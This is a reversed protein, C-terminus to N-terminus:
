GAAPVVPVRDLALTATAPPPELDGLARYGGTGCVVCDERRGAGLADWRGARFDYLRYPQVPRAGTFLALLENVGEAAVAANLTAVSPAPVDETSVYGRRRYLPRLAAPARQRAAATLDIGGICQLCFGGPLVCRVQGGAEVIAGGADTAIGTGLDILPLLYQVALRNVVLRAGDNDVGALVADCGAVQRWAEPHDVPLALPAVRAAPRVAAVYRALAEVKRGRARADAATAGFLRNLNSPEVTDADVLTLHGIGLHALLTVVASGLGGAGIVAVRAGLLRRQGAEGLALVQRAFPAWVAADAAGPDGGAAGVASRPHIVRLRAGAEGGAAPGCVTLREIPVPLLAGAAGPRVGRWLRGAVDSPTLVLAGYWMGPIRAAVYRAITAENEDDVASFRAEGPGFPHSHADLLDLGQHRARLLMERGFPQAVTVHGISQGELAEPPVPVVERALLILRGDPAAHRGCLVFAIQEDRAPPGDPGGLLHRRLAAYAGAPFRLEVTRTALSPHTM